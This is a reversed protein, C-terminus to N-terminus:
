ERMFELIVANLLEPKQEFSYHNGDPVIFLQANPLAEYLSLTHDLAIDEHDGNIVLTRSAVKNLDSVSYNPSSVWMNSMEGLLDGFGSLDEHGTMYHRIFIGPYQTPDENGDWEYTKIFERMEDTYAKWHYTAGSLVLKDILDPTNLAVTLATIAGDSSGIISIREHGLHDALAVVDRAMLDYSIQEESRTSRGQERSDLAIVTYHKALEPIQYKFSQRSEMGGHLLYVPAGTGQKLYDLTVDNITVRHSTSGNCTALVVLGLVFLIKNM